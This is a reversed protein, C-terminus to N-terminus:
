FGTIPCISDNVFGGNDTTLYKHLFDILVQSHVGLAIALDKRKFRKNQEHAKIIAAKHNDTLIKIQKM